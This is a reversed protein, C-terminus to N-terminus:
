SPLKRSISYFYLNRKKNHKRRRVDITQNNIYVEHVTRKEREKEIRYNISTLAKTSAIWFLLFSFFVMHTRFIM